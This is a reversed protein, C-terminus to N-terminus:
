RRPQRPLVPRQGSECTFVSSNVWEAFNATSGTMERQVDAITFYAVARDSLQADFDELKLADRLRTVEVGLIGEYQRSRSVLHNAPIM